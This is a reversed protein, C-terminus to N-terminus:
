CPVEEETREIGREMVVASGGLGLLHLTHIRKRPVVNRFFNFMSSFDGIHIDGGWLETRTEQQESPSGGEGINRLYLLISTLLLSIINGTGHCCSVIRPPIDTRGQFHHKM